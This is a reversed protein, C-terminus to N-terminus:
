EDTLELALRQMAKWSPPKATPPYSNITLTTWSPQEIFWGEQEAGVVWQKVEPQDTAVRYEFVGPSIERM